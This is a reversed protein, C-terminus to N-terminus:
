FIIENTKANIVYVGEYGTAVFTLFADNALAFKLSKGKKSSLNESVVPFPSFVLM